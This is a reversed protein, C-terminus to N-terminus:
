VVQDYKVLLCTEQGYRLQYSGYKCVKEIKRITKINKLKFTAEKSSIKVTLDCHFYM